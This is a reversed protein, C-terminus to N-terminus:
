RNSTGQVAVYSGADPPTVSGAGSLVLALVFLLGAACKWVAYAPEDMERRMQAQLKQAEYRTM